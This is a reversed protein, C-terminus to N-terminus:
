PAIMTAGHGSDVDDVFAVWALSTL